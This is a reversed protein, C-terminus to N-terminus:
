INNGISSLKSSLSYNKTMPTTISNLLTSPVLTSHSQTFKATLHGLLSLQPLHMIQLMTEIIMKSDPVWKTLVPTCTFEEKLQDFATHCKEDFKWPFNKRTLRILPTVIDSYGFIFCRYFNCFRLFSQVDKVRRPEPWDLIIQVKDQAMLLGDISIIFGLYEVSEKHFECKPAAMYLGNKHLRQLVEKVHKSRFLM